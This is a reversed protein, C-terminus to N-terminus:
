KEELPLALVAAVLAESLTDGVHDSPFKAEDERAFQILIKGDHDEGINVWYGAKALWGLVVAVEAWILTGDLGPLDVWIPVEGFAYTPVNVDMGTKVGAKEALLKLQTSLTADTMESGTKLDPWTMSM